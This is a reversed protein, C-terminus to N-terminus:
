TAWNEVPLGPIASLDSDKTVVLCDGLTFAMAAIMIDIVQMVRGMRRLDAAIRGYCEAAQTDFPWCVLDKMARKLRKMNDERTSSFEIGYLIEALVPVATGIRGGRLRVERSREYVDERRNAFDSLIGTDLWYRQM